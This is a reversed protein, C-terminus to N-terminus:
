IRFTQLRALREARRWARLPPRYSIGEASSVYAPYTKAFAPYAKVSLFAAVATVVAIDACHDQGPVYKYFSSRDDCCSKRSLGPKSVPADIVEAMGCAKAKGFLQLDVLQGMCFHTDVAVGTTSALLVIILAIHLLRPLMLLVLDALYHILRQATNSLSWPRAFALRAHHRLLVLRM